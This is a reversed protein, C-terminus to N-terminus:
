RTTGQDDDTAPTSGPRTRADHELEDQVIQVAEASPPGYEGDLYALMQEDTPQTM